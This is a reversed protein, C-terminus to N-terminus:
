SRYRCSDKKYDDYSDFDEFELEGVRANWDAKNQFNVVGEPYILVEYSTSLIM